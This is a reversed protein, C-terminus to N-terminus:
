GKSKGRPKSDQTHREHQQGTIRRHQRRGRESVGSNSRPSVIERMMVSVRALLESHKRYDAAVVADARGAKVLALGEKYAQSRKGESNDYVALARGGNKKVVSMAPVDSMGDGFYIMRQFAVPRNQDSVHRNVDESVKLVGKNIRFIYQTKVTDNVYRALWLLKEQAEDYKYCSAFVESFEKRISTHDLIEGLGASIVYHCIEFEPLLKEAKGDLQDKINLM